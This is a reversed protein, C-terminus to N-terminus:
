KKVGHTTFSIGQQGTTSIMVAEFLPEHTNKNVAWQITFNAGAGGHNDDQDIVIHITELPRIFVPKDFYTRILKGQTDYYDTRLIYISDKSSINRMSATATLNHTGKQSRDYIESYISLYSSGYVLSDKPNLEITRKEWNIPNMHSVEKSEECGVTIVIFFLFLCISRM